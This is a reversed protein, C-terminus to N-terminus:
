WFQIKIYLKWLYSLKFLFHNGVKRRACPESHGACLPAIIAAKNFMSSWANVASTNKDKVPKIVECNAASQNEEVCSASKEADSAVALRSEPDLDEKQKKLDQKDNTDGLKKNLKPAFFSTIKKKEAKARKALAQDAAHSAGGKLSLDEFKRKGQGKVADNERVFYSSLKAQRLSFHM